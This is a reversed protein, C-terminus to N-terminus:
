FSSTTPFCICNRKKARETISTKTIDEDEFIIKGSTPTEIGAILKALTSKGGGNPGTIVVLKNDPITLNIKQVIEKNADDDKVTFSVNKLELM